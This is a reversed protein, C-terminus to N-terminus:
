FCGARLPLEACQFSATLTGSPYRSQPLPTAPNSQLKVQVGTSYWSLRNQPSLYLYKGPAGFHFIYNFITDLLSSQKHSHNRTYFEFKDSFSRFGILFMRGKPVVRPTTLHRGSSEAFAERCGGQFFFSQNESNYMRSFDLFAIRRLSFAGAPHQKSVWFKYTWFYQVFGSVIHNYM